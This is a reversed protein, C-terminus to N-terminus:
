AAVGKYLKQEICRKTLSKLGTVFDSAQEFTVDLRGPNDHSLYNILDGQGFVRAFDQKIGTEQDSAAAILKERLADQIGAALFDGSTYRGELIYKVKLDLKAAVRKLFDEFVVRLPGGLERFAAENLNDSIYDWTGEFASSEPGTELTWRAIKLFRWDGQEGRARCSTQLIDFWHADHTTLIVQFDRFEEFLLEAVRFRHGEDISTLVDDLVLLSGPTNFVRVTALYLCLGLSDLHGESLFPRPDRLDTIGLFKVAVRLGGAAARATQTFALDSCESKEASVGFTHLRNYFNLVLGAIRDFAKQIAQERARSFANRARLSRKALKDAAQLALDLRKISPESEKAKTLLAIVGELESEDAPILAKRQEELAAVINSRVSAIETLREDLELSSSEDGSKLRRVAQGLLAAAERADRLAERDISELLGEHQLDGTLIDTSRQAEIALEELVDSYKRQTEQIAGLASDRLKLREFVGSYGQILEQECLPCTTISPHGEFFLIAERLVGSQAADASETRMSSLTARLGEVRDILGKISVPLPAQFAIIARNLTDVRAKNRASRRSELRAIAASLDGWNNLSPEGLKTISKSCIVLIEHLSNPILGAPPDRFAALQLRLVNRNIQYDSAARESAEVFAKQMADIDSLGLLHIYKQYRTADRDAIFELIQSRRLIFAGVPPHSAMYSQISPRDPIRTTTDSLQRQVCDNTPTFCVEVVPEGKKLVNQVTEVDDIAGTGEGYFRGIRGSFLFEIGDVIASKGKGNGGLIVLNKGRLEVSYGLLGRFHTFRLERIRETM